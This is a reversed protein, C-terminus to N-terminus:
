GHEDTDYFTKTEAAKPGSRMHPSQPEFGTMHSSILRNDSKEQIFEKAARQM